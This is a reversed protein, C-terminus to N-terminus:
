SMVILEQGNLDEKVQHGAAALVTRLALQVAARITSREVLQEAPSGWTVVVGRAPDHWVELGGDTSLPSPEVMFGADALERRVARELDPGTSPAIDM